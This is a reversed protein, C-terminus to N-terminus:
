YDLKLPRDREAPWWVTTIVAAVAAAAAEFLFAAGVLGLPWAIFAEPSPGGPSDNGQPIRIIGYFLLVGALTLVAALGWYARVALRPNRGALWAFAVLSVLAMVPIALLVANM